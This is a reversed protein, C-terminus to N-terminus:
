SSIFQARIWSNMVQRDGFLELRTYLVHGLERRIPQTAPDVARNTLEDPDDVLNYLEDVDTANWIYKWERTRVARQTFLGFQQGNFTLVVENRWPRDLRRDQLLPQLPRGVMRDLQPLGCAQLITPGLDLLNYVFESRQQGARVGPGVMMMPVRVTDDYLVYHKDMMRHSGCMDGHDTTVIVLTEDRCGVQDLAGLVTGIATDVEEILARYRAVVPAWHEWGWDQVGWNILQQYQIYPKDQFDESFSSWPDVSQIPHQQAFEAAPQCPLHPEQLDLRIHWPANGSNLETIEHAVRRAFWAPACDEAPIPLVSGFWDTTGVDSHREEFYEQHEAYPVYREYGFSRPDHEPHVHWKGFYSTRYGATSLARSWTPVDPELAPIPPGGDFNWLTGLTEPRQGTLLSQRAPCCTPLHSYANDFFTGRRALDDLSPTRVRGASTLGICDYRLQDLVILLVNPQTTTSASTRGADSGRDMTM